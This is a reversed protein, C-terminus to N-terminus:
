AGIPLHKENALYAPDIPGIRLLKEAEHHPDAFDDKDFLVSEDCGVGLRRALSEFLRRSAHNSPGVTAEVTDVSRCVDRLLLSDLMQTALGKGRMSTDVAVQWVFLTKMSDPRLYASLFGVIRGGYEAVSCTGTYHFCLILYLYQSNIDLPPCRRILAEIGAADQVKPKRIM